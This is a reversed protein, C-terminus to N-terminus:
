ATECGEAADAKRSLRQGTVVVSQRAARRLRLADGRFGDCVEELGKVLASVLYMAEHDYELIVDGKKVRRHSYVNVKAVFGAYKNKLTRQSRGRVYGVFKIEPDVEKRQTKKRDYTRCDVLRVPSFRFQSGALFGIGGIIMCLLFVVGPVLLNKM